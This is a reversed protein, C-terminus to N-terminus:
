LRYQLFGTPYQYYFVTDGVADLGLLQAVPNEAALAALLRTISSITSRRTKM